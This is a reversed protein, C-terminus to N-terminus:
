TQAWPGFRLNWSLGSISDTARKFSLAENPFGSDLDARLAQSMPRNAGRHYCTRVRREAHRQQADARAGRGAQAHTDFELMWAHVTIAGSRLM